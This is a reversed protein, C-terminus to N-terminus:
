NSSKSCFVFSMQSFTVSLDTCSSVQVLILSVGMLSPLERRSTAADIDKWVVIQLTITVMTSPRFSRSFILLSARLGAVSSLISAVLLGNLHCGTLKGLPFPKM